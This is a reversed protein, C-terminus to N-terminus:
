DASEGPKLYKLLAKEDIPGTISEKLIEDNEFHNGLTLNINSAMDSSQVLKKYFLDEHSPDIYKWWEHSFNALNGPFMSYSYANGALRSADGNRFREIGHEIGILEGKLNGLIVDGWVEPWESKTWQHWDLKGNYQDWFADLAKILLEITENMTVVLKDMYELSSFQRTLLKKKM